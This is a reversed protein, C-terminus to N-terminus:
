EEELSKLLEEPVCLYTVGTLNSHNCNKTVEKLYKECERLKGVLWEGYEWGIAGTQPHTMKMNNIIQEIKDLRTM